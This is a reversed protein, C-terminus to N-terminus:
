PVPSPQVFFVQAGNTTTSNSSCHFIDMTTPFLFNQFVDLCRHGGSVHSILELHGGSPATQLSWNLDSIHTCDISEVPSFDVDHRARMCNHTVTNQVWYIGGGLPVFLWRVAANGCSDQVLQPGAGTDAPNPQVCLKSDVNQIVWPGLTTDAQSPQASGLMMLAM